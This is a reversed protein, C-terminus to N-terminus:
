SAPRLVEGLGILAILVLLDASAGYVRLESDHRCACVRLRALADVAVADAQMDVLDCTVVVPAGRDRLQDMLRATLGPLDAVAIPGHVSFEITPRSWIAM